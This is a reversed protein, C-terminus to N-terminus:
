LSVRGTINTKLNNVTQEIAQIHWSPKLPYRISQGPLVYRARRMKHEAGNKDIFFLKHLSLVSGGTNVFQLASSDKLIHWHWSDKVPKSPYVFIPLSIDYLIQVQHKDKNALRSSDTPIEKLDLRYTGVKESSNQVFLGVRLHRTKHPEITFITPSPFLDQTPNLAQVNNDLGWRYVSVQLTVPHNMENHLRLTELRSKGKYTLAVPSVELASSPASLAVLSMGLLCLILKRVNISM